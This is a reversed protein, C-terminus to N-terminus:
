MKDKGFEGRAVKGEVRFCHQNFLITVIESEWLVADAIVDGKARELARDVATKFNPFRPGGAPIIGLINNSCDEGSITDGKQSMHGVNKSSAVTFDGIRMSCGSFSIGLCLLVAVQWQTRKPSNGM